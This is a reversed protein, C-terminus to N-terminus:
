IGDSKQGATKTNSFYIVRVSVAFFDHDIKKHFRFERAKYALALLFVLIIM